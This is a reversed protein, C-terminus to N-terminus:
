FIRRNWRASTTKDSQMPYAGSLVRTKGDLLSSEYRGIYFGGKAAVSKVMNSFDNQLTALFINKDHVNSNNVYGETTGLIDTIIKLYPISSETGIEKGQNNSTHSNIAGSYAKGDYDLVNPENNNYTGGQKNTANPYKLYAGATTNYNYLIGKYTSNQHFTGDQDEESDINIAMPTYTYVKVGEVETKTGATNSIPLKAIYTSSNNYIANPVPVWVFENGTEDMITLGNETEAKSNNNSWKASLTDIANFGMPVTPANTGLM